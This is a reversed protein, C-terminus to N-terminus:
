GKCAGAVLIWLAGRKGLNGPGPKPTEQSGDGAGGWLVKDPGM